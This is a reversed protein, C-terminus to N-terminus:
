AAAATTAGGIVAHVDGVECVDKKIKFLLQLPM